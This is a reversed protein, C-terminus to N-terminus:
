FDNLAGFVVEVQFYQFYGVHKKTRFVFFFICVKCWIEVLKVRTSNDQQTNHQTQAPHIDKQKKQLQIEVPHLALLFITYLEFTHM